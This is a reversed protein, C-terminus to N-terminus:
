AASEHMTTELLARIPAFSRRHIPTVGFQRLADHHQKTGYGAHRAFGYGPYTADLTEMMRDRTVKAIISAAAISASISDGKIIPIVRCTLAPARNGDVLAVDMPTTVAALSTFARQMALETAKWINLADIEECSAEGIGIQMHGMIAEYLSERARRSLKKSDNLAHILSEPTNTRDIHVCAAVVSGAWPGRGAEDIGCVRQPYYSAEHALDPM